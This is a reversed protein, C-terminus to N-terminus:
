WLQPLLAKEVSSFANSGRLARVRERRKIENCPLGACPYRSTARRRRAASAGVARDGGVESPMQLALTTPSADDNAPEETVEEGEVERGVKEV